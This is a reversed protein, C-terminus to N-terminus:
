QFIFTHTNYLVQQNTQQQSVAMHGQQGTKFGRIVNLIAFHCEDWSAEPVRLMESEMYRSFDRVRREHDTKTPARINSILNKAQQLIQLVFV